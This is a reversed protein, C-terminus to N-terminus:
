MEHSILSLLSRTQASGHTKGLTDGASVMTDGVSVM